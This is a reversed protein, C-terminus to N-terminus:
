ETSNLAAFGASEMAVPEGVGLELVPVLQAVGGLHHRQVAGVLTQGDDGGVVGEFEEVDALVGRRDDGVELTAVNPIHLPVVFLLVSNRDHLLRSHDDYLPDLGLLRYGVIPVDTAELIQRHSGNLYVVHQLVWFIRVLIENRVNFNLYAPYFPHPVSCM